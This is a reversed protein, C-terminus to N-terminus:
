IFEVRGAMEEPTILDYIMMLVRVTYGVPSQKSSYIIGRHSVGAKHLCLFDADKTFIVRGEKNALSLLDYDNAGSMGAEQASLVNVGRRCPLGETVAKPIHEDMYFKISDSM